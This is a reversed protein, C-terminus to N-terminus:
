EGDPVLESGVDAIRLYGASALVALSPLLLVWYNRYPRIALSLALFGGVILFQREVSATGSGSGRVALAVGVVAPVILFFVSHLVVYTSYLWQGPNVLLSQERGMGSLFYTSGTAGPGGQGAALELGRIASEPGWVIGVLGYALAVLGVGAVAFRVLWRGPADSRRVGVIWAVAPIAFVVQQAFLAGAALLGGVRIPRSFVLALLVFLVAANKNSIQAAVVPVAVLFLVAALFGDVRISASRDVLYWICLAIAANALGVLLLNVAFYHGSAEALVQQFLWFPPKNDLARQRYLPTGSLVAEALPKWVLFADDGMRSPTREVLLFRIAEWLTALGVIAAVGNPNSRLHPVLSM